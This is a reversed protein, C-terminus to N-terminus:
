QVSHQNLSNGVCDCGFLPFLLVTCHIWQVWRSGRSAPTGWFPGNIATTLVQKWMNGCNGGVEVQRIQTKTRLSLGKWAPPRNLTVLPRLAATILIDGTSHWLRGCDWGLGKWRSGKVCQGDKAAQSGTLQHWNVGFPQRAFGSGKSRGSAFCHGLDRM